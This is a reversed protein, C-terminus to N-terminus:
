DMGGPSSVGGSTSSPFKPAFQVFANQKYCPGRDQRGQEGTRAAALFLLRRHPTPAHILLLRGIERDEAKLEIRRVVGAERAGDDPELHRVCWPM